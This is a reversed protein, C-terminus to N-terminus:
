HKSSRKIAVTSFVENNRVIVHHCCTGDALGSEEPYDKFLLPLLLFLFLGGSKKPCHSKVQTRHVGPSGPSIRLLRVPLLSFAVECM